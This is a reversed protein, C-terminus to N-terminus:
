APARLYGDITIPLVTLDGDASAAERRLQAIAAPPADVFVEFGLLELFEKAHESREESGAFHDLM